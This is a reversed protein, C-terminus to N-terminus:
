PLILKKPSHYNPAVKRVENVVEEPVLGQAAAAEFKDKDLAYETVQRMDGGVELFKNKGVANFLLDPNYTTKWQYLDWPGCKVQQGRAAKDAAELADNYKDTLARFQEFVEPHEDMFEQLENQANIFHAVEPISEPSVTPIRKKPGAM